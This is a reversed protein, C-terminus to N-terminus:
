VTNLQQILTRLLLDILSLTVLDATNSKFLGEGAEETVSLTGLMMSVNMMTSVSLALPMFGM